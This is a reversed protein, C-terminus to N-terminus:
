KVADVTDYGKGNYKQVVVSSVAPQGDETTDVSTGDLMLPAEFDKIDRLADMFADRTPEKMNEFAQELAAGNIYSWMCHPFQPADDYDAYEKLDSLFTKVDKDDSFEPSAPTKSFAVSYVGPYESAQGPELINSPSSTNSPLLWNPKWGISQAQKLSSIMLPTVSVANLVTDAKTNALQTIQSDVSSDTAEYTLEKVIKIDDNGKVAKKFGEVYGEGYDDNQSLVAVTHKKGSDVLAQGLAEGENQYKPVGGVSWPSEKQDSFTPDGTMVLVQPVKDANAAERYALNTPTGLGSTIAFAKSKLAQYNSSAKQPDYADDKTTIKVKRTKGDGFKIGGDANAHGMYAKLGAVTCTGQAATAGSLPTSVGLTISDDTIGPSSDGDADRSGGGSTCGSLALAGAAVTAATISFLSKKRIM